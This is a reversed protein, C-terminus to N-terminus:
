PRRRFDATNPCTRWHPSGDRDVPSWRGGLTQCWLVSRGCDAGRCSTIRYSPVWGDPWHWGGQRLLELRANGAPEHEDSM